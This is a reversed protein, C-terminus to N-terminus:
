IPRKQPSSAPRARGQGALVLTADEDVVVSLRQEPTLPKAEVTDFFDKWRALESEVFHAIAQARLAKADTALRSIPALRAVEAAGIATANLKSLVAHHLAAAEQQPGQMLCAAPYHKPAQLDTIVSLLATIRHAEANLQAMNFDCWAQEVASAFTQAALPDVARLRLPMAGDLPLVLSPAPFGGQLVPAATLADFPVRGTTRGTVMIGDSDLRLARPAHGFPDLLCALIPKSRLLM